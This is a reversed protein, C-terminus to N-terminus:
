VKTLNNTPGVEALRSTFVQKHVGAVAIEPNNVSFTELGLWFSEENFSEFDNASALALNHLQYAVAGAYYSHKVIHDIDGQEYHHKGPPMPTKRIDLLFYYLIYRYTNKRTTDMIYLFM